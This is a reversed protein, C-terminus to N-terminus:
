RHHPDLRDVAAAGNPRRLSSYIHSSAAPGIAPATSLVQFGTAPPTARDAVPNGATVDLGNLASVRLFLGRLIEPSFKKVFGRRANVRIQNPPRVPGVHLRTKELASAM